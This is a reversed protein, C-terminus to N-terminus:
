DDTDPLQRATVPFWFPGVRRGLGVVAGREWLARQSELHDYRGGKDAMWTERQYLADYLVERVVDHTLDYGPRQLWYTQTYDTLVLPIIGAGIIPKGFSFCIRAPPIPEGYLLAIADERTRAGAAGAALIENWHSEHSSAGVYWLTRQADAPTEAILRERTADFEPVDGVGILRVRWGLAQYDALAEPGALGWDMWRIVNERYHGVEDMQTPQLCTTIVHRFGSEFLVTFAEMMRRRSWSPYAESRIDIGALRAQRRTGGPLYLVSPSLHTAYEAPAMTRFVEYSPIDSM